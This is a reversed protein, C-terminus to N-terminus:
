PAQSAFRKCISPFDDNAALEKLKAICEKEVGEEQLRSALGTWVAQVAAKDSAKDTYISVCTKLRGCYHPIKPKKPAAAAVAAAAKKEADLWTSWVGKCAGPAANDKHVPHRYSDAGWIMLSRLCLNGQPTQTLMDKQQKMTGELGTKLTVELRHHADLCGRARACVEVTDAFSAAKMKDKFTKPLEVKPTESKAAKAKEAPPQGAQKDSDKKGCGVLALACLVMPITWKIM